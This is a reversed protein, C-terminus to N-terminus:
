KAKKRRGDKTDSLLTLPFYLYTNHIGDVIVKKRVYTQYGKVSLSVTYKNIPVFRIGVYGDSDPKLKYIKANGDLTVIFTDLIPNKTKKDIGYLKIFGPADQCFLGNTLFSFLTITLALRKMKRRDPQNGIVNQSNACAPNQFNM